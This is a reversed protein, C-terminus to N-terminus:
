VRTAKAETGRGCWCNRAQAHQTNTRKAKKATHKKKKKKSTSMNKEEPRPQLVWRARRKHICADRAEPHDPDEVLM